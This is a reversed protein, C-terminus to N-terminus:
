LPGLWSVNRGPPELEVIERIRGDMENVEAESIQLVVPADPPCRQNTWHVRVM